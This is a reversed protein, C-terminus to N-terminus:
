IWLDPQEEIKTTRKQGSNGATGWSLGCGASPARRGRDMFLRFQCSPGVSHLLPQSRIAFNTFNKSMFLFGQLRYGSGMHFHRAGRLSAASTLLVLAERARFGNPKWRGGYCDVAALSQLELPDLAEPRQESMCEPACAWVCLLVCYFYIKKGFTQCPIFRM